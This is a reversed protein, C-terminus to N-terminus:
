TSLTDGNPKGDNNADVVPLREEQRCRTPTVPVDTPDDTTPTTPDGTPTDPISSGTVLVLTRRQHRRGAAPYSSRRPLEADHRRRAAPRYRGGRQHREPQQRLDINQSTQVSGVVLATGPRATAFVLGLAPCSGISKIDVRYVM